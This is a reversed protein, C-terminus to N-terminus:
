CMTKCPYFRGKSIRLERLQQEKLKHRLLILLIIGLMIKPIKLQLNSRAMQWTQLHYETQKCIRILIYRPEENKSNQQVKDEPQIDDSVLGVEKLVKQIKPANAEGRKLISVPGINEPRNNDGQTVNQSEKGKLTEKGNKSTAAKDKTSNTKELHPYKKWCLGVMHGLLGCHTCYANNGKCELYVM